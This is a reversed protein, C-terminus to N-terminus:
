RRGGVSRLVGVQSCPRQHGSRGSRARVATRYALQQQAEQRILANRKQLPMYGAVFALAVAVTLLLFLATITVGSPRWIPAGAPDPHGHELQKRLSEVERRLREVENLELEESGRM